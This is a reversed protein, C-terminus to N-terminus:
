FVQCSSHTTCCPMGVSDAYRASLPLPLPPPLICLCDGSSRWVTAIYKIHYSIIHYSINLQLQTAVRHSGSLVCIWVFLVSFTVFCVICLVVCCYMSFCLVFLVYFLVVILFLAPRTGNKRTKGQYKGWLHPFLVPFGWDPYDYMFMCHSYMTM